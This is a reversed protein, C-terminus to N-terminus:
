CTPVSSLIARSQPKEPPDFRAVAVMGYDSGNCLEPEIGDLNIRFIRHGKEENIKPDVRALKSPLGNNDREVKRWVVVGIRMISM